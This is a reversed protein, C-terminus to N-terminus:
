NATYDTVRFSAHPGSIAYWTAIGHAAADQPRKRSGSEVPTVSWIGTIKAVDVSSAPAEVEEGENAAIVTPLM